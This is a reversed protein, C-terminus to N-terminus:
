SEPQSKSKSSPKQLPSVQQRLNLDLRLIRFTYTNSLHLLFQFEIHTKPISIAPKSTTKGNADPHYIVLGELKLEKRLINLEVNGIWISEGTQVEM